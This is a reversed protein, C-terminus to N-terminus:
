YHGGIVRDNYIEESGEFAPLRTPKQNFREADETLTEMFAVLDNVEDESLGLSSFPLTQHPVEYGLGVGGGKNYFTVVEELTDFVGNHMYPATLAVNRVTTTKFSYKYFDVHETIRGNAYRGLDPDIEANDESKTRPVGLVESESEQFLPPVTGNFVPAFHCTGCAAKGMFLNFGRYAEPSLEKTEGRVYQDFPSNFSTLSEVFATIANEISWQCIARNRLEPYAAKFLNLYEESQGLRNVIMTFDANFEKENFVVHEMQKEQDESRMDYFFRHSYIANILTPSNRGVTGEFDFAISKDLGDTFAKEPQHCSACSRELNASLVPDFFLLRGLELKLEHTPSHYLQTFPTKHLFDEAFLNTAHYNVPLSYDFVEDVTEIHMNIQLEYVKEYLPNIFKKLFYLRDFNDFDKQDKLHIVAEKMLSITEEFPIPPNLGEYQILLNLLSNMSTYAEPLANGSAPTDFGSVGLTFIRILNERISEFVHRDGLPFAKFIKKMTDFNIDLSKCKTLIENKAEYPNESFILEDLIQLGEPELVNLSNVNEELSPLPAGNLLDSAGQPDMHAVFHEIEKYALRCNKLDNQLKRVSAMDNSLQEASVYLADVSEEFHRINEFFAIKIRELHSSSKITREENSTPLFSLLIYSAMLFIFTTFKNM